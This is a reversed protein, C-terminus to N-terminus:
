SRCKNLITKILSHKDYSKKLYQIFATRLDIKSKETLDKVKGAISNFIKNSNSEFLKSINSVIETETLM